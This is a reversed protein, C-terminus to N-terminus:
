DCFSKTINDVVVKDSNSLGELWEIDCESVHVGNNLDYENNNALMPYTIGTLTNIVTGVSNLNIFLEKNKM